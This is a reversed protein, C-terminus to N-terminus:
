PILPDSQRLGRHDHRSSATTATSPGPSAVDGAWADGAFSPRNPSAGAAGVSAQAAM